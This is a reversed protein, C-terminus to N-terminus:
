GLPTARVVRTVRVALAGDVEVLEGEAWDQDGVRLTVQDVRPGGLSLVVGPGLGLVEDGRLVVRGVEAVVEVPAAALVATVDIRATVEAGSGDDTDDAIDSSLTGEEVRRARRARFARRVQLEGAATLAGEAVADGMVLSVPWEGGERELAAHGDFVVADGRAVGALEAAGLYTRCLEVRGTVDLAALAAADPTSRAAQELWRAPVELEVWGRADAAVVDFALAVPDTVRAGRPPADLLVAIPAGLAEFARAILGSLVGRSGLDLPGVLASLVASPPNSQGDRLAAEVLARAFSANVSVRGERRPRGVGFSVMEDRAGDRATLGALAIEVPGLGGLSVVARKPFRGLLLGALRSARAHAPSVLPLGRARIPTAPSM